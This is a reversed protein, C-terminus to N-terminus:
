RASLFSRVLFDTEINVRDGRKIAGLTTVERTHPIISVVFGAQTKQAITLSVGDITISGKPAIYRREHAPATVAIDWRNGDAHVSTVSGVSSVHGQVLHGHVRDGFRLSRELNVVMGVSFSGATTAELTAHMYEVTCVTARQRIVTSCIGQVALSDGKKFKWGRPVQIEARVGASISRVSVVKGKGEIIGTFMTAVRAHRSWFPLAFFLGICDPLVPSVLLSVVYFLRYDVGKQALTKSACALTHDSKIYYFFM